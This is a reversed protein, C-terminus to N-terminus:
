LRAKLEWAAELLMDRLDANRANYASGDGWVIADAEKARAELRNILRRQRVIRAVAGGVGDSDSRISPAVVRGQTASINQAQTDM